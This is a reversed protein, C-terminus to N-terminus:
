MEVERTWGCIDLSLLEPFSHTSGPLTIYAATCDVPLIPRFSPFDGTGWEFWVGVSMNVVVLVPCRVVSVTPRWAVFRWVDDDWIVFRGNNTEQRLRRHRQRRPHGAWRGDTPCHLLGPVVSRGSREGGMPRVSPRRIHSITPGQQVCFGFALHGVVGCLVLYRRLRM